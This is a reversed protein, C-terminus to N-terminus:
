SIISPDYIVDCHINLYTPKQLGTQSATSIKQYSKTSKQSTVFCKLSGQQKKFIISLKQSNTISPQLNSFTYFSGGDNFNLKIVSLIMLIKQKYNQVNPIIVFMKTIETLSKLFNFYWSVGDFIIFINSFEVISKSFM